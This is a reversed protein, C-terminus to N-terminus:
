SISQSDSDFLDGKQIALSQNTKSMGSISVAVTRVKSQEFNLCQAVKQYEATLWEVKATINAKTKHVSYSRVYLTSRLSDNPRIPHEYFIFYFIIVIICYIRRVIKGVSAM